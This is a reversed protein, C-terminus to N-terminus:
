ALSINSSDSVLSWSPIVVYIDLLVMAYWHRRNAYTPLNNDNALKSPRDGLKIPAPIGWCNGIQGAEVETIPGTNGLSIDM